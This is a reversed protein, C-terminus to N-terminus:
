LALANNNIIYDSWQQAMAKAIGKFTKSRTKALRKKGVWSVYDAAYITPLLPPLNKLWLLTKKSYPEGFMYPEVFTTPKPLELIKMPIPNEVAIYNCNAQLITMFLKKAELALKYRTDNLTGNPFMRVAGARSLFTCPPHGIILDWQGKQKHKAGDETIFQCNGNLLLTCDGIIHWEKHNGSCKLLDCSFARHGLKRFEICEAQSEECAILINLKKM